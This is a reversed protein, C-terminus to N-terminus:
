TKGLKRAKGRRKQMARKHAKVLRSGRRLQKLAVM